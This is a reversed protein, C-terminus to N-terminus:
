VQAESRSWAPAGIVYTLWWSPCRSRLWFAYTGIVPTLSLPKSQTTLWVNALQFWSSPHNRRTGSTSCRTTRSRYQWSGAM